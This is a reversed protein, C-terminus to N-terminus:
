LVAIRIDITNPLLLIPSITPNDISTLSFTPKLSSCLAENLYASSKNQMSGFKQKIM